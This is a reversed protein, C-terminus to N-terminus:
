DLRVNFFHQHNPAYLQPAVLTGYKRTEGPMLAGTNMIGTLKVEYEIAGDQYFYWYFGYEYNGVTAIFSVVLRRSRRVEVQGTRIDVHKWLVGVDEEHLCIANAIPVPRGQSDNLCADFYRIEGLCDCGLALSNAFVGVGYEGVDFANRRNYHPRPDGYPVVMDCVSARELISRERERDRYSIGYLVLGERANFG